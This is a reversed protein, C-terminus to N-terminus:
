SGCLAGPMTKGYPGLPASDRILLTGRYIDFYSIGWGGRPDGYPDLCPGVPFFRCSRFNPVRMPCAGDKPGITPRHGLLM